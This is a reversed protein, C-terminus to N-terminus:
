KKDNSFYTGLEDSYICTHPIFTVHYLRLFLTKGFPPPPPSNLSDNKNRGIDYIIFTDHLSVVSAM